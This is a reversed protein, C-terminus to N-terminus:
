SLTQGMLIKAQRRVKEPYVSLDYNQDGGEIGANQVCPLGYEVGLFRMDKDTAVTAFIHRWVSVAANYVEREVHREINNGPRVKSIQTYLRGLWHGVHADIQGLVFGRSITHPDIGAVVEQPTDGTHIEFTHKPFPTMKAAATFEGRPNYDIKYMAPSRRMVHVYSQVAIKAAAFCGTMTQEAIDWHRATRLAERGMVSEAFDAAYAIAYDLGDEMQMLAFVNYDSLFPHNDYISTKM